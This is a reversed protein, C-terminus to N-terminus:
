MAGPADGQDLDLHLRSKALEAFRATLDRNYNNAKAVFRNLLQHWQSHSGQTSVGPPMYKLKNSLIRIYQEGYGSDFQGDIFARASGTFIVPWTEKDSAEFLNQFAGLCDAQHGSKGLLYVRLLRAPLLEKNDLPIRAAGRLELYRNISELAQNPSVDLTSQVLYLKALDTNDTGQHGAEGDPDAESIAQATLKQLYASDHLRSYKPLLAAWFEAHPKRSSVPLAQLAREHKEVAARLDSETLKATQPSTEFVTVPPERTTYVPAQQQDRTTAHHATNVFYMVAIVALGICILIVMSLGAPAGAKPKTTTSLPLPLTDAPADIVGSLAREIDAAMEEATQYRENPDKTLAKFVVYNVYPPAEEKTLPRPYTNALQHVIELPTQGDAPLRGTICEYLTCGLAYLDARADLKKGAAAEPSMYHLTGVLAGTATLKNEVLSKNQLSALGLDIIKPVMGADAQQCLMINNPSLDRHVLSARHIVALGALTGGAIQFADRWPLQHKENLLARLSRGSLLEMAIYPYKERWIGYLFFQVVNPHAISAIAEAERKFRALLEADYTANSFKLAVTRGLGLQEAEYVAAMAGRGLHRRIVFKDDITAGVLKTEQLEAENQLRTELSCLLEVM